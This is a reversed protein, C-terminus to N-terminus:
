VSSNFLAYLHWYYISIASFDFIRSKYLVDLIVNKNPISPLVIHIILFGDSLALIIWVMMQELNFWILNLVIMISLNLGYVQIINQTLNTDAKINYNM